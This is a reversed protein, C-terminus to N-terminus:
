RAPAPGGPGAEMLQATLARAATRAAALVQEEQADTDAAAHVAANISLIAMRLLVANSASPHPLLAELLNAFQTLNAGIRDAGPPGISRALLPNAALLRIGRLKDTSFSDIWHLVAREILEVSQPQESTWALLEETEDGRTQFLSRVIEEKSNFHYYLSAKNIGLADAVQRLSTAEYGQKTFLELCVRQVAQKTEAGTRRPGTSAADM